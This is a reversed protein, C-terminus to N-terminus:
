ADALYGWARGSPGNVDLKSGAQATFGAPVPRVSVGFVVGSVDGGHGLQDHPRASVAVAGDVVFEITFNGHISRGLGTLVFLKGSPVTYATGESIQVMEQPAAQGIMKVRSLHGPIISSSGQVAASSVLVTCTLLVGVLASPTHINISINKM